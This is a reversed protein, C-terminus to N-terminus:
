ELHQGFWEAIHPMLGSDQEFLPVGHAEGKYMILETDKSKSLDFVRRTREATSKDDEAAICLIPAESNEAFADREEGSMWPLSSSLFVIAQVSSMRRALLAAQTGGCSAGLVGLRKADVQPQSLLFEVAAAVDDAFLPWLKEHQSHFDSYTENTSEGFGRFDITLVHFGAGMLLLALGDYSKRDRNCQHLLLVAPAPGETTYFTGRIFFDQERPISVDEIGALARTAPVLLAIMLLPLLRRIM